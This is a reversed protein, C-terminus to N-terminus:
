DPERWGSCEIRPLNRLHGVGADTIKTAKSLRLEVLNPLGELPVLGADTLEPKDGLRVHTLQFHETPVAM